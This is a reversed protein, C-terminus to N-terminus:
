SDKSLELALALQTSTGSPLTGSELTKHLTVVAYGAKQSGQEVFSSGDTYLTWEPNEMPTERLEERAAYTQALM